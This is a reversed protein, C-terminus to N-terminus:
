LKVRNVDFKEVANAGWCWGVNGSERMKCATTRLCVM